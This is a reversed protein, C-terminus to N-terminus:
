PLPRYITPTPDLNWVVAGKGLRRLLRALGLESGIADGDPNIHSTLLFRNGQRIKRLLDEPAKMGPM